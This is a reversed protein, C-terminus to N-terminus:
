YGPNQQLNPNLLIDFTSMPSLYMKKSFVRKNGVERRSYFGDNEGKTVDYGHVSGNLVDYAIGWRRLDFFRHDEFALEVRRERIIRERMKEKTLGKPLDPMGVRRRIQNIDDYVAQSPSDDYENLAEAHILLIEAYRFYPLMPYTWGNNPNDSDNPHTSGDIWKQRCMGTLQSELHSASGGMWPKFDYTKYSSGPYQISAKFRPDRNEGPNTFDYGSEEEFPLKGNTMEFSEALELTPNTWNWGGCGRNHSADVFGNDQTPYFGWVYESSKNWFISMFLDTYAVPYQGEANPQGKWLSYGMSMVQEAAKAADMWREKNYNGYYQIDTYNPLMPANTNFLPSAAYLLLRAKTAYVGGRSIRGFETLLLEEEAPIEPAVEDLEKVVWEVSENFTSRPLVSAEKYDNLVHDLLIVGGYNRILNAYFFARLFRAEALFRKKLKEDGPVDAIKNIFINAKRIKIYSNRWFNTSPPTGEDRDGGNPNDDATVTGQNYSKPWIPAYGQVADDTALDYGFRRSVPNYLATTSENYLNNLVKRANAIDKYADQETIDESAPKDLFDSCGATCFLGAVAVVVYKLKM